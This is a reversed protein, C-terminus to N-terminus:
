TNSTPRNPRWAGAGLGSASERAVGSVVQHMTPDVSVREADDAHEYGAVRNFITQRILAALSHQTNKGTRWHNLLNGGLNTLDLAGELERYALLGADSTIKFTQIELKLRNDFTM